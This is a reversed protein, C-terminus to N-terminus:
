PTRWCSGLLALFIWFALSFAIAAILWRGTGETEAPLFAPTGDDYNSM